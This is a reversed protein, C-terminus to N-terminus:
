SRFSASVNENLSDIFRKSVTEPYDAFDASGAVDIFAAVVAQARAVCARLNDAEAGVAETAGDMEATLQAAGARFDFRSGSDAESRVLGEFGGETEMSADRFRPEEFQPAGSDSPVAPGLDADGDVAIERESMVDALTSQALGAMNLLRKRAPIAEDSAIEVMAGAATALIEVDGECQIADVQLQDRLAFLGALEASRSRFLDEAPDVEGRMEDIYPAGASTATEAKAGSAGLVVGMAMAAVAATRGNATGLFAQLATM